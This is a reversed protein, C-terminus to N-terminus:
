MLSSFNLLAFSFVGKGEYKKWCRSHQLIFFQAFCLCVFTDAWEKSPPSLTTTRHTQKDSILLNSEKGRWTQRQNWPTQYRLFLCIPPNYTDIADDSGREVVINERRNKRQNNDDDSGIVIVDGHESWKTGKPGDPYLTLLRTISLENKAWAMPLHCFSTTITVSEERQHRHHM